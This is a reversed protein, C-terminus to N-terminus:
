RTEKGIGLRLMHAIWQQTAREMEPTFALPDPRTAEGSQYDRSWMLAKHAKRVLRPDPSRVIM